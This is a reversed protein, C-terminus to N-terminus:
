PGVLPFRRLISELVGGSLTRTKDSLTFCARVDGRPDVDGLKLGPTAVIGDRLLGRVVGAIATYVPAAGVWAVLDGAAVRDGITRVGRVAGVGPARLVREEAVGAIPAPVGTNPLASGTELVRGLDHGRQTEIVVHADQGCVAGPGLSVVLPAATVSTAGPRKLLRADVVVDPRWRAVLAGAPDVVVAVHDLPPVLAAVDDLACRRGWVGEVEVAGDWVASAFAVTRRVALPAAVETLAV